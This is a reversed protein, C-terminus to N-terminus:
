DDAESSEDFAPLADLLGEQWLDAATVALAEVLEVLTAGENVPRPGRAPQTPQSERRECGSVLGTARAVTSRRSKNM